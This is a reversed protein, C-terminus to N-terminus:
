GIRRGEDRKQKFAPKSREEQARINPSERHNAAAMGACARVRAGAGAGTGRRSDDYLPLVNGARSPRAFVNVRRAVHAGIMEAHRWVLNPVGHALWNGYAGYPAPPPTQNTVAHSAFRDHLPPNNEM